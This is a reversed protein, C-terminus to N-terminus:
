ITRSNGELLGESLQLNINILGDLIDSRIATGNRLTTEAVYHFLQGLNDKVNQPLSGGEAAALSRIGIWLELNHNLAAAMETPDARAQDLQLAAQSLALADQEWISLETTGTSMM